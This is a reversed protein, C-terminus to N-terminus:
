VPLTTASLPVAHRQWLRWVGDVELKWVDTMVFSGDRVVGRMTTDMQALAHHAAFGEPHVTLTEEVIRYDRTEIEGILTLWEDKSVIQPAPHVYVITFDDALYVATAEADGTMAVGPYDIIRQRLAEPTETRVATM